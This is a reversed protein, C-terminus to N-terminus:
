LGTKRTHIRTLRDYSTMYLTKRDADGFAVNAVPKGTRILGLKEGEPSIVWVGGPGTAFITGDTAVAMGDPNGFGESERETSVDLFLAGAGVTGDTTVPYIMFKSDVPDSNAVYLSRGDPSLAIGNPRTLTRDIVSLDGDPSLAFVGNFDLEKAPNDDQDTLGYPPDTFYIMGSSHVVVDNPSNLRKGEFKDALVTKVQTEVDMVYLARNGHDPVLVKGPGYPYLGNAGPSSTYDAKVKSGAPLMWLSLGETESFKWIANGPVDTFLLYGDEIWVPGESWAFEGGLDEIQANAPLIGRAMDDIYGITPFNPDPATACASLLLLPLLRKM